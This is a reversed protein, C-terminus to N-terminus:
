RNRLFAQRTDQVTKGQHDAIITVRVFRAKGPVDSMVTIEQAASTTTASTYYRFLATTRTRNANNTSWLFNASLTTNVGAGNILWVQDRLTGDAGAAVIHRERVNDNNVDTLFSASYATPNEIATNQSIIEEFHSLPAGIEQAFLAQRDSAERGAYVASLAGWSMALVGFLLSISVLLEALSLGSDGRLRM